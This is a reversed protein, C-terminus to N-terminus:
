WRARDFWAPEPAETSAVDGSALGMGPADAPRPVFGHRRYFETRGQAAFLQVDQVGRARAEAVLRTLISAGIGQGRLTDLVILETVFAHLAGDGILRGIGVAAGDDDRATCVVWSGALAAEFTAAPHDGWGTQVYLRQLEAATPPDLTLHV